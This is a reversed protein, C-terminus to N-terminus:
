LFSSSHTNYCFAHPSPPSLSFSLFFSLFAAVFMSTRIRVIYAQLDGGTCLEMVVHLVRSSKDFIVDHLRVIFPFVIARMAAVEQEVLRYEKDKLRCCEVVKMAYIRSDACSQVRYVVGYSGKGIENLIHYRGQIARLM